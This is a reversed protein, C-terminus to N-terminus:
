IDPQKRLLSSRLLFLWLSRGWSCDRDPWVLAPPFNQEHGVSDYLQCAKPMPRYHRWLLRWRARRGERAIAQVKTRQEDALHSSQPLDDLMFPIAAQAQLQSQELRTQQSPELSDTLATEM